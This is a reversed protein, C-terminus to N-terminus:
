DEVPVQLCAHIECALNEYFDKKMCAQKLSNVDDNKGCFLNRVMIKVKNVVCICIGDM